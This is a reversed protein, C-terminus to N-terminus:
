SLLILCATHLTPYPLPRITYLLICNRSSLLMMQVMGFNRMRCGGDGRKMFRLLGEDIGVLVRIRELVGFDHHEGAGDRSSNEAKSAESGRNRTLLAVCSSLSDRNVM